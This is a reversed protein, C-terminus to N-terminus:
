IREAIQCLFLGYGDLWISPGDFKLTVNAKHGVEVDVVTAIRGDKFRYREGVCAASPPGAQPVPVMATTEATSM